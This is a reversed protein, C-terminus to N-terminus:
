AKRHCIVNYPCQRCVKLDDTQRFPVEPNFLSELQEQLGEEFAQFDGEEVAKGNFLFHVPRNMTKLPYAGLQLQEDPFNKHYVYGYWLM